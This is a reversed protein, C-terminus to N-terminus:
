AARLPKFTPVFVNPMIEFNNKAHEAKKKAELEAKAKAIAAAKKEHESVWDSIGFKKIQEQQQYTYVGLGGLAQVKYWDVYAGIDHPFHTKIESMKKFMFPTVYPAIENHNGLILEPIQGSRQVDLIMLLHQSHHQYFHGKNFIPGNNHSLTWITDLMMEPSYTGNIFKTLCDTVEGWAPGGYGSNWSGKNFIFQATESLQGLTCAPPHKMLAAHIDGEGGKAALFNVAAPNFDTILSGYFDSGSKCHRIERVCIILLYYFARVAIRHMERHYYSLIEQEWSSLPEHPHRKASILAHAHNLGYFMLAEADPATSPYKDNEKYKALATVVSSLPVMSMDRKTTAIRSNIYALTNSQDTIAM